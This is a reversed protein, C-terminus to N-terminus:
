QGTRWGPTADIKGCKRCAREKVPRDIPEGPRLTWQTWEHVCGIERKLWAALGIVLAGTIWWVYRTFM